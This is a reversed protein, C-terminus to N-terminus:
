IQRHVDMTIVIVYTYMYVVAYETVAHVACLNRYFYIHKHFFAQVQRGDM